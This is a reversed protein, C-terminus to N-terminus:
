CNSASVKVLHMSHKRFCWQLFSDLEDGRFGRHKILFYICVNYTTNFTDVLSETPISVDNNSDEIVLCIYVYLAFVSIFVDSIVIQFMTCLRIYLVHVYLNVGIILIFCLCNITNMEDIFYDNQNQKKTSNKKWRPRNATLSLLSPSIPKQYLVVDLTM